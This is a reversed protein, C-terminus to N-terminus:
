KDGPLGDFITVIDAQAKLEELKAKLAERRAEDMLKQRIEDQVDEFPRVSPEIRELVRVIQINRDTIFEQSITGVPLEFLAKEVAKNSLSGKRTWDWVGGESATAGDSFRRAVEGFDEGARLAEAVQRFVRWAEDRGGHEEFDIVIQQWRVRGPIRYDDIHERYYALLEERPFHTRFKTQSRLYETAMHRNIFAEQLADLTTGQEELKRMLEARSSAKLEKQIRAVEKEFENILIGRVHDLQEPKLRQKFLDVLLRTEIVQPLDRKILENRLQVYQTAPVEKRLQQLNKSYYDLIESVFIPNGNVLAVVEHGTLEPQTLVTTSLAYVPRVDPAHTDSGSGSEFGNSAVTEATGAASGTQAVPASADTEPTRIRPPPPGLVPNDVKVSRTSECGVIATVWLVCLACARWASSPIGHAALTPTRGHRWRVRTRRDCHFLTPM